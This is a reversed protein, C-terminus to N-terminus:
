NQGTSVMRHRPLKQAAQLVQLMVVSCWLLTWQVVGEPTLEPRHLSRHGPLKQAAQLVQLMVVSCWLRTWQVVGEPRLEPRHLSCYCFVLPTDM